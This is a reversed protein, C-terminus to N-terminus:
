FRCKQYVKTFISALFIKREYRVWATRTYSETGRALSFDVWLFWSGTCCAECQCSLPKRWPVCNLTSTLTVRSVTRPFAHRHPDPSTITRAMDHRFHSTNLFKNRLHWSSTKLQVHMVDPTMCKTFLLSTRFLNKKNRNAKAETKQFFRIWNPILEIRNREFFV